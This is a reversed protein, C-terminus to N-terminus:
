WKKFTGCLGIQSLYVRTILHLSVNFVIYFSPLLIFIEKESAVM